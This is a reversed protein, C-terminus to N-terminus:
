VQGSIADNSSGSVAGTGAPAACYRRWMARYASEINRTFGPADMLPSQRMWHRLTSRLTILRQTDHALQLALRVYDDQSPAVWQALGINALISAAGRAVAFRGALTVLPVGM